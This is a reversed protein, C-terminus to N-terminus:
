LEIDSSIHLRRFLASRIESGKVDLVDNDSCIYFSISAIHNFQEERLVSDANYSNYVINYSMSEGCNGVEEINVVNQALGSTTLYKEIYEFLQDEVYPYWAENAIGSLSNETFHIMKIKPLVLVAM